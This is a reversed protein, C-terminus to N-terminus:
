ALAPDRLPYLISMVSAPLYGAEWQPNIIGAEGDRTKSLIGVLLMVASKVAAPVDQPNGESDDFETHPVKLYNLVMESAAEILSELDEDEDDIDYRLRAKVQDLDVLM